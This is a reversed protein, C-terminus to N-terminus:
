STVSSPKDYLWWILHFVMHSLIAVLLGFKWFILGFLISQWANLLVMSYFFPRSSKCGAALYAPIQVFTYLISSIIISFWIIQTSLNGIILVGFFVTVNLLGWRAIIEDVVGGYLMCGDLGISKRMAQMIRKNGEGIAKNLLGYYMVLFILLGIITISFISLLNDIINLQIPTGELLPYLIPASLGTKKSLVSGALAMIFVMIFSQGIAFHSMRKVVSETNNKLMFHMLRPIAIFIGPLTLCVLVIIMPWYISM